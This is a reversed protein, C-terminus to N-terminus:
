PLSGTYAEPKPYDKLDEDTFWEKVEKGRMAIHMKVHNKYPPYDRGRRYLEEDKLESLKTM